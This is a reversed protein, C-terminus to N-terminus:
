GWFIGTRDREVEELLKSFKQEIFHPKFRRWKLNRDQCYLEWERRSIVYKFKAVDTIKWKGPNQFAPREEFLIVSMGDIRFGHKLRDRVESPVRDCFRTLQAEVAQRELEPLPM